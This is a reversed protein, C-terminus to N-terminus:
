QHLVHKLSLISSKKTSPVLSGSILQSTPGLQLPNSGMLSLFFSVLFTQSGTWSVPVCLQIKGHPLQEKPEERWTWSATEVIQDKPQNDRGSTPAM